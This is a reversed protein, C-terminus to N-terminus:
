GMGMEYKECQPEICFVMFEDMDMGEAMHQQYLETKTKAFGLRQDGRYSVWEDPRQAMLAPLERKFAERAAMELAGYDVSLDSAM